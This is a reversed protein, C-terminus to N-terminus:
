AGAVGDNPPLWAFAQALAQSADDRIPAGHGVVICEIPLTLLADISARAAKRDSFATWRLMRSLAIQDYFGMWKTYTKTWAGQPRGVNHFLDAVLLLRAPRYFLATEGLRFGEIAVEQILESFGPEPGSGHVRDVRLDRRKRDLGRPAHVRVDPFAEVWGRAHLHHFLNPAYVHSVKGLSKVAAHREPTLEVPSYVLLTEDSLRLITMTTTLTTGVIRVPDSAVWVGETLQAVERSGVM